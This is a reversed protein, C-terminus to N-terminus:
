KNRLGIIHLYFSDFMQELNFESSCYNIIKDFENNDYFESCYIGEGEKIQLKLFESTKKHNTAWLQEYKSTEESIISSIQYMDINFKNFFTKFLEKEDAIGLVKMRGFLYPLDFKLINFGVFKM